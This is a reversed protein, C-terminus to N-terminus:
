SGPRPAPTPAWQAADPRRAGQDFFRAGQGIRDYDGIDERASEALKMLRAVVEPHTDAVDKSEGIDTDLDFLLPEAIALDDDPHIHQNPSFFGLWPAPKPRPLHLKWRGQRVAQLHTLFYYYFVKDQTTKDFEGALLHQINEGDIIRDAPKRTGALAAFTPLVDLTSALQDCVTAAPTRGPAWVVCPVRVGGEWTSTKGSRLPGAAGGHDNVSIGNRHEQNKILWPGNDSTFLVYTNDALGTQRLTELIRGVHHDIEEVVDGYIGRASRGQFAASTHLATHPMNPCLYIFFPRSRNDHIFEIAADTYRQTTGVDQRIPDEIIQGNHLLVTESWDDNSTPTGFHLDFGQHGPLLDAHFDRYAHKALDWKGIMASTYGLPRLLEAITIEQTHVVPHINKVNDREAVRMPYCGTMIATRSPGCVPQAYFNTFRMGEAAMRDLNPTRITTSGFCGLDGYGLDDAFVIIFNPPRDEIDARLTGSSVVLGLCALALRRLM